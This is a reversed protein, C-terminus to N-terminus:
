QEPALSKFTRTASSTTTVPFSKLRTMNLLLVIIRFVKRILYTNHIHISCTLLSSFKRNIPVSEKNLPQLVVTFHCRCHSNRIFTANRLTTPASSTMTGNTVAARLGIGVEEAVEKAMPKLNALATIHHHFIEFKDRNGLKNLPPTFKTLAPSTWSKGSNSSAIGVVTRISMM